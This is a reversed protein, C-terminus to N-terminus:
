RPLGSVGRRIGPLPLQPPGRHRLDTRRLARRAAGGEEQQVGRAGAPPRFAYLEAGLPRVWGLPEPSGPAEVPRESDLGALKRFLPPEGLPHATFPGSPGGATALRFDRPLTLRFRTYWALALLLLLLGLLTLLSLYRQLFDPAAVEVEITFPDSLAGLPMDRYPPEALSFHLEVGAAGRRDAPGDGRM